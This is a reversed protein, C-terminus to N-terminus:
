LLAQMKELVCLLTQPHMMMEFLVSIDLKISSFGLSSKNSRRKVQNLKDAAVNVVVLFV